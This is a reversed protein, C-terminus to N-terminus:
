TLKGYFSGYEGDKFYFEDEDAGDPQCTIMDFHYTLGFDKAWAILMNLSEKHTELHVDKLDLFFLLEIKENDLVLNVFVNSVSNLKFSDFAIDVYESSKLLNIIFGYENNEAEPFNFRVRGSKSLLDKLFQFNVKSIIGTFIIETLTLVNKM